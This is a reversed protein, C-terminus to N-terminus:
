VDFPQVEDREILFTVPRLGDTCCGVGCWGRKDMACLFGGRSITLMQPYLAAWAQACFGEPCNMFADVIIEHGEKFGGCPKLEKGISLYKEALEPYIATKLVTLKVKYMEAM